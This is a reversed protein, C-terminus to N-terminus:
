AKSVQVEFITGRIGVISTPTKAEFKSDGVLKEAKVLVAGLSVDLLTKELKTDPDHNFTKLTFESDYGVVLEATKANGSLELKVESNKGTKLSDGESLLTSKQLESWQDSGAKKFQADGKISLVKAQSPLDSAFSVSCYNAIMFLALGLLVAIKLNQITKIYLNLM